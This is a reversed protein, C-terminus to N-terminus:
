HWAAKVLLRRAPQSGSETIAGQRRTQGSSKESPVLGVYSM